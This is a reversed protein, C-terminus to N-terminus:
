EDGGSMTYEKIKELDFCFEPHYFGRTDKYFRGTLKGFNNEVLSSLIDPNFPENIYANTKPLKEDVEVTLYSWHVDKGCQDFAILELSMNGNDYEGRKFVVKLPRGFPKILFKKM